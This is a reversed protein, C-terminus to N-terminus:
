TGVLKTSQLNSFHPPFCNEHPLGFDVCGVLLPDKKRQGHYLRGRLCSDGVERLGGGFSLDEVIIKYFSVKIVWTNIGSYTADCQEIM